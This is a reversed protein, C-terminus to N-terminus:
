TSPTTEEHCPRGLVRCWTSSQWRDTRTGDGPRLTRTTCGSPELMHRQELTLTTQPPATLPPARRTHVTQEGTYSAGFAVLATYFGAARKELTSNARADWVFADRQPVSAGLVPAATALALVVLSLTSRMASCSSPSSPSVSKCFFTPAQPISVCAQVEAAKTASCCCNADESTPTGHVASPSTCSPPGPRLHSRLPEPIELLEDLSRLHLTRGERERRGDVELERERRLWFWAVSM